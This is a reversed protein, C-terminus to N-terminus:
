TFKLQSLSKCFSLVSYRVFQYNTNKYYNLISDHNSHHHLDIFPDSSPVPTIIIHGKLWNQRIKYDKKTSLQTSIFIYGYGLDECYCAKSFKSFKCHIDNCITQSICQQFFLIRDDCKTKNKIHLLCTAKITICIPWFLDHSMRHTFFPLINHTVVFYYKSVLECSFRYFLLQSEYQM